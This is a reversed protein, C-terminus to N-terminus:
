SSESFLPTWPFLAVWTEEIIVRAIAESGADVFKHLSEVGINETRNGDPPALESFLSMYVPEVAKRITHRYPTGYHEMYVKPVAGLLDEYAKQGARVGEKLM